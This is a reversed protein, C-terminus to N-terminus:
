RPLLSPPPGYVPAPPSPPPPSPLPSPTDTPPQTREPSPPRQEQNRRLMGPPPGYVAVAPSPPGGQAVKVAGAGTAESQARRWRAVIRDVDGESLRAGVAFAAPDVGFERLTAQPDSAFRARLGPEAEIGAMLAAIGSSAVAPSAAPVIFALAGRLAARVISM